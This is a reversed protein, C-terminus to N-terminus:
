QNSYIKIARWFSWDRFSNNNRGPNTFLVLQAPEELTLTSVSFSQIGRDEPRQKPSLHREFITKETVQQTGTESKVVVNFNVGDMPHQSPKQYAEALIGFQGTLQYHGAPLQFHIEGPAHAMLVAQDQEYRIETAHAHSEIEAPLFHLPQNGGSQHPHQNRALLQFSAVKLRTELRFDGMLVADKVGTELVALPQHIVIYDPAYHYLWHNLKKEGIYKANYPTVLGLIDIIYRQSYWGVTGIEILAIKAEIPTNGKIWRGIIAYPTSRDGIYSKSHTITFTTYLFGILFITIGGLFLSRFLFDPAFSLNRTLWAVGVAMYFFIFLYYPAYYWHYNSINLVTYFLAYFILFSLIIVNIPQLRLRLIGFITLIGFTYIVVLNYSFFWDFHYGINLFAPWEGWLESQGQYIKAQATHPLFQGYYFKNFLYVTMLILFPLIFYQFKPFPRKQRFHEIALALILFIGESRTILLLASSIGLWFIKQKEFLYLCLAILFMFLPTEMGYTIYFFPFCALFVVALLMFYFNEYRSFVSVLLWLTAIMLGIALIMAAYQINGTLFSVIITLLTYLPSTLGNFFVGPNYVLGNGELLNRIYRQYILADDLQLNLNLYSFYGLPILTFFFLFWKKSIFNILNQIM